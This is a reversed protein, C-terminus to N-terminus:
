VQYNKITVDSCVATIKATAESVPNISGKLGADMSGTNSISNLKKLPMPLIASKDKKPDNLKVKENNLKKLM